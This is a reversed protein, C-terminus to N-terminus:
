LQHVGALRSNHIVVASPSEILRLTNLSTEGFANKTASSLALCGLIRGGARMPM